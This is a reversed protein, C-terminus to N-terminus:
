PTPSLSPSPTWELRPTTRGTWAKVVYHLLLLSWDAIRHLPCSGPARVFWSLLAAAGDPRRQSHHRLQYHGAQGRVVASALVFVLTLYTHRLCTFLAPSDHVKWNLLFELYGSNAIVMIVTGNQAVRPLANHLLFPYDRYKYGAGACALHTLSCSADFFSPPLLHFLPPPACVRTSPCTPTTKTTAPM